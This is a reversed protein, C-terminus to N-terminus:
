RLAAELLRNVSEASIGTVRIVKNRSSAGSAISVSSPRLNLLDAFFRICAENARGDVPPATLEVKLGDGLVGSIRERKARPHVKIAFTVADGQQQVRVV